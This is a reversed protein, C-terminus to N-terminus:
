VKKRPGSTNPRKIPGSSLSNTSCLESSSAKKVHKGLSAAYARDAISHLQIISLVVAAISYVYSRM